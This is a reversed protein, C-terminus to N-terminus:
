EYSPNNIPVQEDNLLHFLTPSKLISRIDMEEGDITANRYVLRVGHSYDVYSNVHRVYCAQVRSGDPRHWGYIAVNHNRGERELLSTIVIDKKLGSVMMGWHYGHAKFLANIANNSDQFVWPKTNRDGVPRFPFIDIAGQAADNIRDVIFPTPLICNLSDAIEQAALPTMPMRVFDRDTGIAIYDCTVWLRVQHPTALIPISDVIPTTFVIERLKRLSDPVHGSLITSVIHRDRTWVSMTDCMAIFQSGTVATDTPRSVLQCMSRAKGTLAAKQGWLTTAILAIATAFIIRKIM